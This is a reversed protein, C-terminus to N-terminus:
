IDSYEFFLKFLTAAGAMTDAGAGNRSFIYEVEEGPSFNGPTLTPLYTDLKRNVAGPAADTVTVSEEVTAQDLSTTDDGGVTRYEAVWVVNGTIVQATWRAIIKAGAVYNLPVEFTGHLSDKTATDNFIIVLPNFIDNTAKIAYPEAFVAGATGGSFNIDGGLIEKHRLM